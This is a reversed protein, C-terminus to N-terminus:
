YHVRKINKKDLDVTSLKSISYTKGTLKGFRIELNNVECKRGKIVNYVSDYPVDKKTMTETDLLRLGIKKNNKVLVSIALIGM